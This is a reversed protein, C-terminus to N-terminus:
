VCIVFGMMLEEEKIVINENIDMRYLTPLFSLLQARISLTALFSRVLRQSHWAMALHILYKYFCLFKKILPKKPLGLNVSVIYWGFNLWSHSLPAQGSGGLLQLIVTPWFYKQLKRMLYIFFKCREQCM